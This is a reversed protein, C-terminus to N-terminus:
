VLARSLLDFTFTGRNTPLASEDPKPSPTMPGLLEPNFIGHPVAVHRLTKSANWNGLGQELGEQILFM